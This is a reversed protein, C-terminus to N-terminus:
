NFIHTEMPYAITLGIPTKGKKSFVRMQGNGILANTIINTCPLRVAYAAALGIGIMFYIKAPPVKIEGRASILAFSTDQMWRYGTKANEEPTGFCDKEICLQTGTKETDVSDICNLDSVLSYGGKPELAYIDIKCDPKCCCKKIYISYKVGGIVLEIRGVNNPDAGTLAILQQPGAPIMSVCDAQTTSNWGNFTINGNKDYASASISHAGYVYIWDKQCFCMTYKIPRNTMQITSATVRGDDPDGPNCYSNVVTVEDVESMQAALDIPDSEADCDENNIIIEGLKLQVKAVATDDKNIANANACDPLTTRLKKSVEKTFDITVEEGAACLELPIIDTLPEGDFCLQYLIVTKNPAESFGGTIKWAVCKDLTIYNGTPGQVVSAM